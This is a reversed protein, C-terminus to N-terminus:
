SGKRKALDAWAPIHPSVAISAVLITLLLIKILMKSFRTPGASGSKLSVTLLFRELQPPLVVTDHCDM